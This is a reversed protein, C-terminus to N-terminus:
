GIGLFGFFPCSIHFFAQWSKSCWDSFSLLEQFISFLHSSGKAQWLNNGQSLKWVQNCLHFGLPLWTSERLEPSPASLESLGLHSSYALRTSLPSLQSSERELVQSYLLSQKELDRRPSRKHSGQSVQFFVSSCPNKWETDKSWKDLVMLVM